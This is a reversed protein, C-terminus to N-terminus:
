EGLVMEAIVDTIGRVDTTERNSLVIFVAEQDLYREIVTKFGNLAGPHLVVMQGYNFEILWGYGYDGMRGSAHPTFMLTILDQPLLQETYLARDWLYLDEVTSYLAGAGCSISLDIPDVPLWEDGIGTYGTALSVLSPDYGSSTMQLPEFINEQIFLGYPLGSVQEIVYGLLLYNSNSYDWKTGPLFWLLEDKLHSILQLTTIPSRKLSEYDSLYFYDPIGSTHTLLHHLSIGSWTAPCEPVFDCIPDAVTLLGRSQLMLIAVATFQKTISAIRFRTAPTNPINRARDSLGYGQSLIVQGELAVLVSGSFLNAEVLSDLYGDIEQAYESSTPTFTPSATTTFTPEPTSTPSYALTPALTPTTPAASPTSEAPIMPLNCASLLLLLIPITKLYRPM